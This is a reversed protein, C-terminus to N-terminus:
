SVLDSLVLHSPSCAQSSLLQGRQLQQALVPRLMGWLARAGAALFPPLLCQPAARVGACAEGPNEVM